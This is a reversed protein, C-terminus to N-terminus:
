WPEEVFVHREVPLRVQRQGVRHEGGRRLRQLRPVPLLSRNRRVCRAALGVVANVALWGAALHAATGEPVYGAVSAVVPLATLSGTVERLRPRRWQWHVMRWHRENESPLGHQPGNQTENSM